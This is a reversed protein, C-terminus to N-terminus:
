SSAWAPSVTERKLVILRFLTHLGHSIEQGLVWFAQKSGRFILLLIIIEIYIYYIYKKQMFGFARYRVFGSCLLGPKCFVGYCGWNAIVDVYTRSYYTSHWWQCCVFIFPTARTCIKFWRRITETCISPIIVSLIFLHRGFNFVNRSKEWGLGEHQHYIRYLM